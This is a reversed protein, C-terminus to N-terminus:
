NRKILRNERIYDKWSTLIILRILKKRKKRVRIFFIKVFPLLREIELGCMEM